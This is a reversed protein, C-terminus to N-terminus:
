EDDESAIGAEVEIGEDIARATREARKVVPQMARDYLDRSPLRPAQRWREPSPSCRKFLVFAQCALSESECRRAHKCSDCPTIMPSSEGSRKRYYEATDLM